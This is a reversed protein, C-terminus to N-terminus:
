MVWFYFILYYVLCIGDLFISMVLVLLCCEPAECSSLLSTRPSCCNPLQQTETHAWSQQDTFLTLRIIKGRNESSLGLFQKQPPIISNFDTPMVYGSPSAKTIKLFNWKNGNLSYAMHGSQSSPLSDGVNQLSHVSCHAAAREWCFRMIITSPHHRCWMKNRRLLLTQPEWIM